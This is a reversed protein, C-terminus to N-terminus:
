VREAKKGVSNAASLKRGGESECIVMLEEDEKSLILMSWILLM